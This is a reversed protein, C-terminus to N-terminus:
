VIGARLLDHIHLIGVPKGDQVIFLATIPQDDENMLKLAAAALQNPKVTKPKDTMVDSALQDLLNKDIHRRLDGDTIVGALNGKTNLVGVCGFSKNTMIILTESMPTDANVLPISDGYHMVDSVKLFKRGLQGGPHLANFKEPSFKQRELLSVALADGLALMLTTSTTPALNLPCAEKIDPLVLSVDGAKDLSSGARGTISILPISNIRTYAVLNSLEPTEGSNSLAILADQKTIMGLDGHSAEGANVFQAPTGTSALTAAIKSAIHGSKGVGSIVVRGKASAMIDLARVFAGDLANALKTLGAAENHLVIRAIDLDTPATTEQYDSAM